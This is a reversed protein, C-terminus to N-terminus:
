PLWGTQKNALLFAILALNIFLGFRAEPWGVICLLLSFVSTMLTLSQWWSLRAGTGISSATFALAAVLWLFGYVRIGWDGVNINGALLTTKYPIEKLDALKWYAIFGPLHALGHGFLILALLIPM